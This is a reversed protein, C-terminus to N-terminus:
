LAATAVLGVSAAAALFRGAKRMLHVTVGGAHRGPPQADDPRAPRKTQLETPLGLHGLVRRIV